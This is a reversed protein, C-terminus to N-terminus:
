SYLDAIYPSLMKRIKNKARFIRVKVLANSIDLIEAIAPYSLGDYERLVFPERFEDPLTEVASRVIELLEDEEYNSHTPQFHMEELRTMGYHKNSKATICLNRAIKLIFGVTNTMARPQQASKYFRVFTEQFIDEALAPDGTVRVCYKLVRPALRAYLEEFAQAGAKGSNSVLEFLEADSYTHLNEHM